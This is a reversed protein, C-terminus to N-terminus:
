FVIHVIFQVSKQPLRHWSYWPLVANDYTRKRYLLTCLGAWQSICTSGDSLYVVYSCLSFLIYCGNWVWCKRCSTFIAGTECEVNEVHPAGYVYMPCHSICTSGDCWCDLNIVTNGFCGNKPTMKRVSDQLFQFTGPSIHARDMTNVKPAELISRPPSLAWQMAWIALPRM